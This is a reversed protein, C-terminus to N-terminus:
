FNYSTAMVSTNTGSFSAGGNFSMGIGSNAVTTDFGASTVLIIGTGSAGTTTLGTIALQHTIRAMGQVVGAGGISRVNVWVEVIGTDIVATGVAFTFTLVAADSTTGQTGYRVRLIPTETGAGTKVMDFCAYYTTGIKPIRKNLVFSGSLYTDAAFGTQNATSGSARLDQQVHTDGADDMLIINPTVANSAYIKIKGSTPASPPSSQESLILKSM